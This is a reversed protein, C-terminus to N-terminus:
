IIQNALM